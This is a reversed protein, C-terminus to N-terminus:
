LVQKQLAYRAVSGGKQHAVTEEHDWRSNAPWGHSPIAPDDTAGFPACFFDGSLFRLNPLISEDSAIAPDDVWPATYFPTLKRGDREIEVSRLHGVALDVVVKIGKAQVTSFRELM